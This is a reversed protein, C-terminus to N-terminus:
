THICVLFCSIYSIHSNQKPNAPIKGAGLLDVLLGANWAPGLTFIM